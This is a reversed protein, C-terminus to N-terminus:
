KIKIAKLAQGYPNLVSLTISQPIQTGTVKYLALIINEGTIKNKKLIKYKVLELGSSPLLSFSTQTQSTSILKGEKFIEKDFFNSGSIKLIFTTNKKGIQVSTITPMVLSALRSTEAKLPPQIVSVNIKTKAEGNVILVLTGSGESIEKPVTKTQIIIPYKEDGTSSISILISEM